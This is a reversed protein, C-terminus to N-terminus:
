MIITKQRRIAEPNTATSGQKTVKNHKAPGGGSIGLVSLQKRVLDVYFPNSKILTDHTGQGVVKGQDLVIIKDSRQITSLKQAIVIITPVYRCFNFQNKIQVTEFLFILFHANDKSNLTRQGTGAKTEGM